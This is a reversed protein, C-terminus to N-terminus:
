SASSNRPSASSKPTHGEWKRNPAIGDASTSHARRRREGKDTKAPKRCDESAPEAAEEKPEVAKFMGAATLEAHLKMGAEKVEDFRRFGSYHKGLVSKATHALAADGVSEGGFRTCWDGWFRRLSYFTISDRVKNGSKRCNERWDDFAQRVADSGRTVIPQSKRTRFVLEDGKIKSDKFQERLLTVLELPLWYVGQVSTKNRRHTLMAADLDFEERRITSLELQGLGAFLGTLFWMRHMPAQRNNGIGLRYLNVIEAVTIQEPGDASRDRESKSMIRTMSLEFLERWDAPACWSGFRDTERQRHLWKIALRLHSILRKVTHPRIPERRGSARTKKRSLPRGKLLSTLKELVTFDVAQLLVDPQYHKLAVVSDAVSRKHSDSLPQQRLADVFADLAGHLTPGKKPVSPKPSESGTEETLTVITEAALNPTLTQRFREAAQFERRVREVSDMTRISREYEPTWGGMYAAIPAAWRIRAAELIAKDRNKGLWFVKPRRKGDKVYTGCTIRYGKIKHYPLEGPTMKPM